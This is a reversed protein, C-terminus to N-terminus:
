AKTVGNSKKRTRPTQELEELQAELVAVKAELEAIRLDKAMVVAELERRKCRETELAADLDQVRNYLQTNREELQDFATSLLTFEDRKATLKDRQTSLIADSRQKMGNAIAVFLATVAALIAIIEAASM